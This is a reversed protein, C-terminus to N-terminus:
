SGGTWPDMHVLAHAVRPLKVQINREVQDAIEHGAEVTLKADVEIHLDVVIRNGMTRARINHAAKVGSTDEAVKQIGLVTQPDVSTDVLQRGAQLSFSVGMWGIFVAVALAALPDGWGWGLRALAIGVVVALSSFADSRHHWANALAALSEEAQGAAVTVRFLVEKAVFSGGAVLIAWLPPTGTPESRLAEVANWGIVVTVIILILGVLGAALTELRGHGYPHNHDEPLRALSVGWLVIGDSVLDSLSHLGDALLAGSASVLGAAVKLLGLAANVVMGQRTVKLVRSYSSTTAAM